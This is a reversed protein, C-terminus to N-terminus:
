VPPRDSVAAPSPAPAVLPVVAPMPQAANTQGAESSPSRPPREVSRQRAAPQALAAAACGGAVAGLALALLARGDGASLALAGGGIFAAVAVLLLGYVTGTLSLLDGERRAGVTPRAGRPRAGRRRPM